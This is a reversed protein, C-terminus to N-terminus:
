RKKKGRKSPGAFKKTVKPAPTSRMPAEAAVDLTEVLPPPEVSEAPLSAEYREMVEAATTPLSVLEALQQDVTGRVHDWNLYRLRKYRVMGIEPHAKLVNDIQSRSYGLVFCVAEFPVHGKELLRNAIESAM